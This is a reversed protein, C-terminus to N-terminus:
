EEFIYQYSLNISHTNDGLEHIMIYEATLASSGGVRITGGVGVSINSESRSACESFYCARMKTYTTGLLAYPKVQAHVSPTFKAYLAYLEDLKIDAQGSHDSVGKGYRFELESWSTVNGAASITAALLGVGDEEFLGAATLQDVELMSVGASVYGIRQDASVGTACFAVCIGSIFCRLRKNTEANM